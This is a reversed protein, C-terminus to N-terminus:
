ERLKTYAEHLKNFKEDSNSKKDLAHMEEIRRQNDLQQRLQEELQLRH